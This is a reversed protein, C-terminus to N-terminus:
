LRQKKGAEATPPAREPKRYFNRRIAGALQEQRTEEGM